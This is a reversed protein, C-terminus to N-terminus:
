KLAVVAAFRERGVFHLSAEGNRRADSIDKYIMAMAQTNRAALTSSDTRRALSTTSTPRCTMDIIFRHTRLEHADCSESSVSVGAWRGTDVRKACLEQVKLGFHQGGLSTHQLLQPEADVDIMRM